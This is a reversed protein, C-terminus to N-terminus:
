LQYQTLYISHESLAWVKTDPRVLKWVRSLSKTVNVEVLWRKGVCWEVFWSKWCMPFIPKAAGVPKLLNLLTAIFFSFIVFAGCNCIVERRDTKSQSGNREWTWVDKQGWWRKAEAGSCHSKENGNQQSWRCQPAHQEKMRNVEIHVQTEPPTFPPLLTPSVLLFGIMFSCAKMICAWLLPSASARHLHFCCTSLWTCPCRWADHQPNQNLSYFLMSSHTCSHLYLGSSKIGWGGDTTKMVSFSGRRM